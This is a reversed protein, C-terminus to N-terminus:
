TNGATLAISPNDCDKCLTQKGVCDGNDFCCQHNDMGPDCQGNGLFAHSGSVQCTGCLADLLGIENQCDGIDKCCERMQVLIPDCVGDNVMLKLKDDKCTSCADVECFGGDFCCDLNNFLSDCRKNSIYAQYHELSCTRCIVEQRDDYCDGGDFCCDSYNYQEECIGNNLYLDYFRDEKTPSCSSCWNRGSEGTALCDGGDYCCPYNELEVQCIGDGIQLLYKDFNCDQCLKSFNGIAQDPRCDGGDLCCAETLLDKDCYLDSVLNPLHCTFCQHCDLADFCCTLDNEVSQSCIGDTSANSFSHCTSCESPELDRCDSDSSRCGMKDCIMDSEVSCSLESQEFNHACDGGDFCCDFSTSISPDCRSDGVLPFSDTDNVIKSCGSCLQELLQYESPGKTLTDKGFIELLSVQKSSCDGGDFCCTFSDLRVDCVGNGM